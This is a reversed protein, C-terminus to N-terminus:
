ARRHRQEGLVAFFRQDAIRQFRRQAAAQHVGVRKVGVLKAGEGAVHRAGAALAVGGAGFGAHAHLEGTGLHAQGAFASKAGVRKAAKHGPVGLQQEPHVVGMAPLHQAHGVARCPVGLALHACRGFQVLQRGLGAKGFVVQHQARHAHGIGSMDVFPQVRGIRQGGRKVGAAM